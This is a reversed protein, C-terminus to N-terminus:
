NNQACFEIKLHIKLKKLVLNEVKRLVCIKMIKINIKIYNENQIKVLINTMMM